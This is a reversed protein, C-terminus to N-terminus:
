SARPTYDDVAPSRRHARLPRLNAGLTLLNLAERRYDLERLLRASSRLMDQFAFRRGLRLKDIFGAMERFADLDELIIYQLRPAAGQVGDRGYRLKAPSSGLSRRRPCHSLRSPKSLLVGWSPSVIEDVEAFPFPPLQRCGPCRTWTPSRCSTPLDLPATRATFTPVLKEPAPSSSPIASIM